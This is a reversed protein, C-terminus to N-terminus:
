ARPGGMLRVDLGSGAEDAHHFAVIETMRAKVAADDAERDLPYRAIVMGDAVSTVCIFRISSRTALEDLDIGDALTWAKGGQSRIPRACHRCYAHLVGAEDRTRGHGPHHMRTYWCQTLTHSTAPKILM